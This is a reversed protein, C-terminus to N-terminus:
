TLGKIPEGHYVYHPRDLTDYWAVDAPLGLAQYITAALNEPKQPDSAPYGGVEDSSGIVTGGRIGGGTLFVSPCAGTIM